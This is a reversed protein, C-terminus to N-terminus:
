GFSDMVVLPRRDQRCGTRRWCSALSQGLRRAASLLRARDISRFVCGARRHGQQSSMSPHPTPTMYVHMYLAASQVGAAHLTCRGRRAVVISGGVLLGAFLLTAVAYTM